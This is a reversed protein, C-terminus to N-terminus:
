PDDIFATRFEEFFAGETFDDTRGVAINEDFVILFDVEELQDYLSGTISYGVTDGTAFAASVILTSLMLGVVILVTQSTRRRINRLGMRVLLPNRWAIWGLVGLSVAMLLLLGAM